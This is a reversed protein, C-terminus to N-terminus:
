TKAGCTKAEGGLDAVLAAGHQKRSAQASNSPTSPRQRSHRRKGDDPKAEAEDARNGHDGDRREEGRPIPRQGDAIRALVRDHDVEGEEEGHRVVRM